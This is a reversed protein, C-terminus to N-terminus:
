FKIEIAELGCTTFFEKGTHQAPRYKTIDWTKAFYGEIVHAAIVEGVVLDHDGAEFTKWLKCELHAVCEEILPASVMKAKRATLPLETFKDIDKGSMRGARMVKEAMDFTPINVVFEGREQIIPYTFRSKRISMTILPPNVSTPIIWAITAVNNQGDSTKTSILTANYPHLLYLSENLPLAVKPPGETM